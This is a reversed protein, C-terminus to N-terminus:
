ILEERTLYYHLNQLQHVHVIPRGYPVLGSPSDTLLQFSYGDDRLYLSDKHSYKYSFVNEDEGYDKDGKVYGFGILHDAELTVPNVKDVPLKNKPLSTCYVFGEMVGEVKFSTEILYLNYYWVLNGVRIDAEEIM